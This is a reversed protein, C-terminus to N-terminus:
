TDLNGTRFVGLLKDDGHYKNLDKKNMVIHYGHEEFLPYYDTGNLAKEGKFYEAGGALWVDPAVAVMM